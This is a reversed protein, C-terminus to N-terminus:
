SYYEGPDAKGEIIVIQYILLIFYIFNSYVIAETVESSGGLLFIILM